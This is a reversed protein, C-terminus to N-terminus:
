RGKQWDPKLLGYIYLDQKQNNMSVCERQVVERKFGMDQLINTLELDYGPAQMSVRFLNLELFAYILALHITEEIVNKRVPSFAVALSLYASGHNWAIKDIMLLGNLKRSNKERIWFLYLRDGPEMEQAKTQHWQQIEQPTMERKFISQYPLWDRNSTWTSEVRDDEDCVHGDLSIMEGTFLPKEIM